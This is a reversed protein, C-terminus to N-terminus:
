HSEKHESKGLSPFKKKLFPLYKKDISLSHDSTFALSLTAAALGFDRIAISALGQIYVETTISALHLALLLATLRTFIGFLLLTGLVIEVSGNVYILQVASLPLKTSWAPLFDIWDNPSLLQQVGFWLFVLSMSIRLFLTSFNTM